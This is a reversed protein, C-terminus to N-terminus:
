VSFASVQFTSYLKLRLRLRTPPFNIVYTNRVPRTSGEVVANHLPSLVEEINQKKEDKLLQEPRKFFGRHCRITM